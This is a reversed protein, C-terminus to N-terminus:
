FTVDRVPVPEREPRLDVDRYPSAQMAAVLAAGTLAVDTEPISAVM